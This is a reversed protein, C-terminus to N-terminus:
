CIIQILKSAAASLTAVIIFPLLLFQNLQGFLTLVRTKKKKEKFQIPLSLAVTNEREGYFPWALM